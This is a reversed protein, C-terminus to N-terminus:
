LRPNHRGGVTRERSNRARPRSPRSAGVWSWPSQLGLQPVLVDCWRGGAKHSNDLGWRTQKGQM